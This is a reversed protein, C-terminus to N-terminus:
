VYATYEFVLKLLYLTGTNTDSVDTREAHFEFQINGGPRYDLIAASITFGDPKVIEGIDEMAVVKKDVVQPQEHLREGVGVVYYDLRLVVNGGVAGVVTIQPKVKIITGPVRDIPVKMDGTIYQDADDAFSWIPSHYWTGESAGDAEMDTKYLVKERIEQRFVQITHRAYRGASSPM